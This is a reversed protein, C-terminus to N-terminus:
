EHGFFLSKSIHPGLAYTENTGHSTQKQGPNKPPHLPTALAGM